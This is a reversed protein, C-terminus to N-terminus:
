PVEGPFCVSFILYYYVDNVKDLILGFHNQYCFIEMCERWYFNCTLRTVCVLVTVVGSGNHGIQGIVDFWWLWLLTWVSIRNANSVSYLIVSLWLSGGVAFLLAMDYCESLADIWLETSVPICRQMLMFKASTHGDYLGELSAFSRPLSQHHFNTKVTLFQPWPFCLQAM